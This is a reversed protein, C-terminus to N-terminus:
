LRPPARGADPTAAHTAHPRADELVPASSLGPAPIMLTPLTASATILAPSDLSAGHAVVSPSVAVCCPATAERAADAERSPSDMPRPSAKAKAVCCAHAPATAAAKSKAGVLPCAAADGVAFLCFNNGLLFLALSLV